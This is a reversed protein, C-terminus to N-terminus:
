IASNNRRGVPMAGSRRPRILSKQFQHAPSSTTFNNFCCHDGIALRRRKAASPSCPLRVIRRVCCGRWLKTTDSKILVVQQAAGTSSSISSTAGFRGISSQRNLILWFNDSRAVECPCLRQIQKGSSCKNWCKKRLVVVTTALAQSGSRQIGVPKNRGVASSKSCTWRIM